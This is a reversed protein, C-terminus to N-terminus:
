RNPRSFCSLNPTMGSLEDQVWLPNSPVGPYFARPSLFIAVGKCDGYGFDEGKRNVSTNHLAWSRLLDLPM